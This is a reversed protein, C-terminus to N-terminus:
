VLLLLLVLAAAELWSSLLSTLPALVAASLLPCHLV